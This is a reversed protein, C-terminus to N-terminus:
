NDYKKDKLFENASIINVGKYYKVTEVEGTHIYGNLGGWFCVSSSKYPMECPLGKYGQANLKEIVKRGLHLDGKIAVTQEMKIRWQLYIKM